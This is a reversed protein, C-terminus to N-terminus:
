RPVLSAFIDGVPTWSPGEFGQFCHKWQLPLANELFDNASLRFNHLPYTTNVNGIWNIM